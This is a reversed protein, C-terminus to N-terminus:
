STYINYQANYQANYEPSYQVVVYTGTYGTGLHLLTDVWMLAGPARGPPRGSPCMDGSASGKVAWCGSVRGRFDPIPDTRAARYARGQVGQGTGTSSKGVTDCICYVPAVYVGCLPHWECVIIAYAPRSVTRSCNGVTNDPYYGVGNGGRYVYEVYNGDQRCQMCQKASVKHVRRGRAIEAITRTFLRHALVAMERPLGYISRGLVFRLYLYGVYARISCRVCM